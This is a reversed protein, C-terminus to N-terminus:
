TFLVSATFRQVKNSLVLLLFYSWLIQWVVHMITLKYLESIQSTPLGFWFLKYSKASASIFCFFPSNGWLLCICKCGDSSWDIAPSPHATAAVSATTLTKNQKWLLCRTSLIAGMFGNISWKTGTYVDFWKCKRVFEFYLDFHIYLLLGSDWRELLNQFSSHLVTSKLITINWAWARLRM